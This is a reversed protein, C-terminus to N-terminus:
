SAVAELSARRIRDPPRVLSLDQHGGVLVGAGVVEVASMGFPDAVPGNLRQFALAIPDREFGCGSRSPKDVPCKRLL